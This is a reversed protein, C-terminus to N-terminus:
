GKINIIPKFKDIIAINKGNQANIVEDINKYAFPSEDLTEKDVKATIGNMAKQFEAINITKKAKSRSMTRGAGHSASELYNKDGLGAVIYTGDKMNGPIIGTEAGRASIAGKRHL